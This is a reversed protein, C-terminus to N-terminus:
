EAAEVADTRRVRLLEDVWVDAHGTMTPWDRPKDEPFPQLLPPDRTDPAKPRSALRTKVEDPVIAAYGSMGKARKEIVAAAANAEDVMWAELELKFGLWAAMRRAYLVDGHTLRYNQQGSRQEIYADNLMGAIAEWCHVTHAKKELESLTEWKRAAKRASAIIRELERRDDPM